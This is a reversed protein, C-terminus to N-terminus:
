VDNMSLVIYRSFKLETLVEFQEATKNIFSYLKLM